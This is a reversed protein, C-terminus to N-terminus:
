TMMRNQCLLDFNPSLVLNRVRMRYGHGVFFDYNRDKRGTEEECVVRSGENPWTSLVVYGCETPRSFPVIQKINRWYHKRVCGVLRNVTFASRHALFPAHQVMSRLCPFASIRLHSCFASTM